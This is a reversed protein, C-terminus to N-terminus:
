EFDRKEVAQLANRNVTPFPIVNSIKEPGSFDKDKLLDRLEANEREYGKIIDRDLKAARIEGTTFPHGEPTWLFGNFFAWGQWGSKASLEPCDGSILKLAPIVGTPTKNIRYWREVTQISVNFFKAAEKKTLRARLLAERYTM